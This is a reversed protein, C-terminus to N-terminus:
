SNKWGAVTVRRISSCRANGQSTRMARRTAISWNQEAWSSTLLYAQKIFDFVPHSSWDPDAFRKDGPEPNAVPEVTEGSLKRLTNTWLEMYKSTLGSQAEVLKAPNTSWREAIEALTKMAQATEAALLMKAEGRERPELIAAVAKGTEETLAALNRALAEPDKIQYHTPANETSTM